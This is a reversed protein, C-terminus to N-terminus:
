KKKKSQEPQPHTFLYIGPLIGLSNIVLLAFFWWTQGARASRWLAIGRLVIDLVIFPLLLGEWHGFVGMMTLQEWPANM